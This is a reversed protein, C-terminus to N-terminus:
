FGLMSKVDNLDVDGDKDKDLGTKGLMSTMSSLDFGGPANTGSSTGFKSLVEPILSGAIKKAAAGEIGFKAMITEVFNDQMKLGAPHTSPNSALQTLDGAQGNAIMSKVSEFISNGASQLVGDNHENPVDPNEIVASQGSRQLMNMLQDFM